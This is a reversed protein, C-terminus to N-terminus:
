RRVGRSVRSSCARGAAMRVAPCRHHLLRLPTLKEAQKALMSGSGQWAQWAVGWGAAGQKVPAAGERHARYLVGWSGSARGARRAAKAQMTYTHTNHSTINGHRSIHKRSDPRSGDAIRNSERETANAATESEGETETEPARTIHQEGLRRDISHHTCGVCPM